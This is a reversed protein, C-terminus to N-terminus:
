KTGGFMAFIGYKYFCDVDRFGIKRLVDLQDFLASPKNEPKHKYHSPLQDYKGFGEEVGKQHLAQNIWDVWMQFQWQESRESSPLVVDINVFLGGVQLERYLKAYMQSKALFDLHHIANISFIFSYKADDPPLALYAEFTQQIFHVNEGEFKQRAKDLMAAAGDLLYYTNDPYLDRFRKTISGDGCGLDLINLDKQDGFHYRFINLLLRITHQREVIIIDATATYIDGQQRNTLWTNSTNAKTNVTKL